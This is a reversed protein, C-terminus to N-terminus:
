NKYYWFPIDIVKGLSTEKTKKNVRYSSINLTHKGEVINKIPLITEFGLQKNIETGIFNSTYLLSDIKIVYKKNVAKFFLSSISDKERILKERDVHKFRINIATNKFGRKDKKPKLTSDM